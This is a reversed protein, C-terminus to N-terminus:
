TREPTKSAVPTPRWCDVRKTGSGRPRCARSRASTTPVSSYIPPTSAVAAVASKPALSKPEGGGLHIVPDGAARMRAAEANLKLTVSAGIAQGLKSFPM